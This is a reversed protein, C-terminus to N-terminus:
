PSVDTETPHTLLDPRRPAPSEESARKVRLSSLPSHSPSLTQASLCLFFFLIVVHVKTFHVSTCIHNPQPTQKLSTANGGVSEMEIICPEKSAPCCHFENRFTCSERERKKDRNWLQQNCETSCVYSGRRQVSFHSCASHTHTDSHLQRVHVCPFIRRRSHNLAHIHLM